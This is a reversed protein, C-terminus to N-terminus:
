SILMQHFWFLFDQCIKPEREFFNASSFKSGFEPCFLVQLLKQSFKAATSDFGLKLKRKQAAMRAAGPELPGNKHFPNGLLILKRRTENM